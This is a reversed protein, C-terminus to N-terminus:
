LDIVQGDETHPGLSDLFQGSSGYIGVLYDINSVRWYVLYAGDMARDVILENGERDIYM